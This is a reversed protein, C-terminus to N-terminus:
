HLKRHSSITIAGNCLLHGGHGKGEGAIILLELDLPKSTPEAEQGHVEQFVETFTEYTEQTSQSWYEAGDKGKHGEKWAELIHVSRVLESEQLLLWRGKDDLLRCQMVANYRLTHKVDSFIKRASKMLSKTAKDKEGDVCSFAEHFGDIVRAAIAVGHEDKTHQYYECTFGPSSPDDDNPKALGPFYKRMLSGIVHNPLRVKPPKTPVFEWQCDGTPTILPRDTTATPEPVKGPGRGSKKRKSTNSSTSGSGDSHVM